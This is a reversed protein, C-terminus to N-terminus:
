TSKRLSQPINMDFTANVDRQAQVDPRWYQSARLGELERRYASSEYVEENLAVLHDIRGQNTSPPTEALAHEEIEADHDSFRDHYDVDSDDLPSLYPSSDTSREAWEDAVSGPPMRYAGQWHQGEFPEDKLIEEWALVGSSVHPNLPNNLLQTAAKM